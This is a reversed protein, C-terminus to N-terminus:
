NEIFSNQVLGMKLSLEMKFDWSLIQTSFIKNTLLAHILMDHITFYLAIKM